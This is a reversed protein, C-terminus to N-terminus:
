MRTEQVMLNTKTNKKKFIKCHKNKYKLYAEVFDYINEKLNLEETIIKLTDDCIKSKYKQIFACVRGGTIRQRVFWRM